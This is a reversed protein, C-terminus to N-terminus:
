GCSRTVTALPNPCTPNTVSPLTEALSPGRPIIVPKDNSGDDQSNNPAPALRHWASSTVAPLGPLTPPAPQGPPGPPVGPAVGPPLVIPPGPPIGLIPPPPQDPPPPPLVEPPPPPPLPPEGPAPVAGQEPIPPAIPVQEPPPPPPKFPNDAIPKCKTPIIADKWGGPPNPMEAQRGDPCVYFCAGNVGGVPGTAGVNAQIMMGSFGLNANGIVQAGGWECHRHSGNLEVPFDEWYYYGAVLAGDDGSGCVAPYDCLGPSPGAGANGVDAHAVASLSFCGTLFCLAVLLRNVSILDTFFSKEVLETHCRSGM